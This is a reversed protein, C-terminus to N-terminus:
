TFKNFYARLETLGLEYDKQLATQFTSLTEETYPHKDRACWRRYLVNTSATAWIHQIDSGEFHKEIGEVISMERAGSIIVCLKSASIHNHDIPIQEQEIREVLQQAITEGLGKSAQLSDRDTTKLHRKVFASVELHIVYTEKNFRAAAIQEALTTKGSCIPGSVFIINVPRKKM